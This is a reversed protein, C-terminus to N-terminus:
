PMLQDFRTSRRTSRMQHNCINRKLTLTEYNSRTIWYRIGLSRMYAKWTLSEMILCRHYHVFIHIQQYQYLLCPLLNNGCNYSFVKNYITHFVKNNISSYMANVVELSCEELTLLINSYVIHYEFVNLSMKIGSFISNIQVM